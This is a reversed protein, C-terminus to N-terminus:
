RVGASIILRLCGDSVIPGYINQSYRINDKLQNYNHLESIRFSLKRLNALHTRTPDVEILEDVVSRLLYSIQDESPRWNLHVRSTLLTVNLLM